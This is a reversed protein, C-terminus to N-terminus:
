TNAALGAQLPMEHSEVVRPDLLVDYADGHPDDATQVVSDIDRLEKVVGAFATLNPKGM